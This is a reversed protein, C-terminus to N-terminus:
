RVSDTAESDSPQQTLQKEAQPLNARCTGQQTERYNERDKEMM